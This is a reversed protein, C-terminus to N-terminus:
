LETMGSSSRSDMNIGRSELRRQFSMLIRSADLYIRSVVSATRFATSKIVEFMSVPRNRRNPVVM